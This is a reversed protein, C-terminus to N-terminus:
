TRAHKSQDKRRDGGGGVRLVRTRRRTCCCQPSPGSSRIKHHISNEQTLLRPTTMTEEHMATNAPRLFKTSTFLYLPGAHGLYTAEHGLHLARTAWTYLGRPRTSSQRRTATFHIYVTCIFLVNNCHFLVTICYTKSFVFVNKVHAVSATLVNCFSCHCNSRGNLCWYLFIHVM